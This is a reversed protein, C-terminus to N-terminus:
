NRHAVWGCEGSNTKDWVRDSMVVNQKTNSITFEEDLDAPFDVEVAWYRDDNRFKELNKWPTAEVVDIQRGMRSIIIGRHANAVKFRDNNNGRAADKEKDISFFRPPFEAYRIRVIHKRDSNRDKVEFEKAPLATARDEDEDHLRYGPTIFLPDLPEVTTGDFKITTSGLYNRFVVGFHQILNERLGKTTKWTLRDLKDWVVVSGHGLGSSSVHEMIHKQVWTPLEAKKTEPVKPTGSFGPKLLEGLDVVVAHWDGDATKSYISFKMAQNVSATPLGFGFRGFGTRSAVIQRHTGGWAAARRIMRPVMGHGDDIIAMSTPKTTAKGGYDLGICVQTAGAEISNDILEDIATGTNNYHTNRMSDVFASGIAFTYEEGLEDMRDVYDLQLQLESKDPTTMEETM